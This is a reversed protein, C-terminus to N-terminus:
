PDEQVTPPSRDSGPLPRDPVVLTLTYGRRRDRLVARDPLIEAHLKGGPGSWCRRWGPTPVSDITFTHVRTRISGGACAGDGVAFATRLDRGLPLRELWPRWADLGTQIRAARDRGDGGDGGGDDGGRDAGTGDVGFRGEATFLSVGGPSLLTLSWDTASHQNGSDGGADAGRLSLIGMGGIQHGHTVIGVTVPMDDFRPVLCAGHASPAGGALLGAAAAVVRALRRTCTLTM